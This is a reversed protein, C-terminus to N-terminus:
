LAQVPIPTLRGSAAPPRGLRMTNIQLILLSKKKKLQSIKLTINSKHLKHLQKKAEIGALRSTTRHGTVKAGLSARRPEAAPKAHRLPSVKMTSFHRLWEKRSVNSEEESESSDRPNKAGTKEMIRKTRRGRGEMQCSLKRNYCGECAELPEGGKSRPM